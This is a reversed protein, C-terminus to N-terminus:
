GVNLQAGGEILARLADLQLPRAFLYGQFERCGLRALVSAEELREVGEATVALNMAYAYTMTAEVIAGGVPNTDIDTVLTRDLKVRDFAFQRLYGISSYGTGFDDLAITAGLARLSDIVRRARAPQTILFTETLELQLRAPDMGAEDLVTRVADVFAPNRLQVASVNVSVKLGDFPAIEAVARRLAFLGLDDILGSSEAAPIFNAPGIPGGPRNPWRLLAEVGLVKRSAFDVIPQYELAFEGAELGRRMDAQLELRLRREV